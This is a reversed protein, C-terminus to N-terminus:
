ISNGWEVGNITLSATGDIIEDLIYKQGNATYLEGMTPNWMTVPSENVEIDLGNMDAYDIDKILESRLQQNNEKILGALQQMRKIENISQKM